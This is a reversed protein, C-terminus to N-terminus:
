ARCTDYHFVVNDNKGTKLRYTKGCTNLTIPEGPKNGHIVITGPRDAKLELLLPKGAFSAFRLVVPTTTEIWLSGNRKVKLGDYASEISFVDSGLSYRKIGWHQQSLTGIRLVRHWGEVDILEQLALNALLAGWGYGTSSNWVDDGAGTFMNYNECFMNAKLWGNEFMQLSKRAFEAATADFGYRKLCDYVIFNTPPWIRGAWYDNNSSAPYDLATVSLVFEGWFKKPDRMITNVMYEAQEQTAVGASLPYFNIISVDRIWRGNWARLCFMRSKTDYLRDRMRAKVGAAERQYKKADRINGLEEAMMALAECDMTYLSNLAVCHGALTQAKKDFKLKNMVPFNDMGAEYLACIHENQQSPNYKKLHPFDYDPKANSGWSLLGTNRPDRVTFWWNHWRKLGDYTEALIAIDKKLCYTKWVLYAGVPPQSRDFAKVGFSAYYNPLFGDPTKSALIANFNALSLAADVTNALYGMFFQDWPFNYSGNWDAGWDRSIQTTIGTWRSDYITNWTVARPVAMLSLALGGTGALEIKQYSKGARAIRRTVSEISQRSKRPSLRLAAPKAPKNILYTSDLSIFFMERSPLYLGPHM